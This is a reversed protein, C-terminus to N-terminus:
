GAKIGASCARLCVLVVCSLENLDLAPEVIARNFSLLAVVILIMYRNFALRQNRAEAAASLM